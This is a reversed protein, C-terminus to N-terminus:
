RTAGFLGEMVALTPLLAELVPYPHPQAPIVTLMPLIQGPRFSCFSVMTNMPQGIFVLDKSKGEKMHGLVHFVHNLHQLFWWVKGGYYKLFLMVVQPSEM